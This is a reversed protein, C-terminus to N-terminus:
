IERFLRTVRPTSPKAKSVAPIATFDCWPLVIHETGLAARFRGRFKMIAPSAAGIEFYNTLCDREAFCDCTAIPDRRLDLLHHLVEFNFPDGVLYRARQVSHIFLNHVAGVIGSRSFGPPNLGLLLRRRLSTFAM